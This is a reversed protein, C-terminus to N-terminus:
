YVGPQFERCHSPILLAETHRKKLKHLDLITQRADDSNSTLFRTVPHPFRLSGITESNWVADAVLFIDRGTTSRLVLGTQGRTHGPLPVALLSGDGLVDFATRFPEWDKGLARLPRSEIPIM